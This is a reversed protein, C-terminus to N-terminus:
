TMFKRGTVEELIMAAFIHNANSNRFWGDGLYPDEDNTILPAVRLFEDESLIHTGDPAFLIRNMSVFGNRNHLLERISPNGRLPVMTSKRKRMRMENFIGCASTDWSLGYNNNNPDRLLKHFAANILIKTYSTIHYINPVSSDHPSSEPLDCRLTTRQPPKGLVEFHISV